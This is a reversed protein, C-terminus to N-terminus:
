YFVKTNTTHYRPKIKKTTKKTQIILHINSTNWYMYTLVFPLVAVFDVLGYFSFVYKIRSKIISLEKFQAPTAYLRFNYELFFVFSTIYTVTNLAKHYASFEEFSGLIVSAVSMIICVFVSYYILRSQLVNQIKSYIRM